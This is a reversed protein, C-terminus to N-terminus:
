KFLLSFFTWVIPYFVLIAMWITALVSSLACLFNDTNFKVINVMSFLATKTYIVMFGKFFVQWKYSKMIKNFFESYRKSDRFCEQVMVMWALIWFGYVWCQWLDICSDLISSYPFGLFEYRYDMPEMTSLYTHNYTRGLFNDRILHDYGNVIGIGKHYWTLCTPLYSEMLPTLAIFQLVFLLSWTYGFGINFFLFAFLNLLIMTYVAGISNHLLFKSDCHKNEAMMPYLDLTFNQLHLPWGYTEGLTHTSDLM